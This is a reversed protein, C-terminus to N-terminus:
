LVVREWQLKANKFNLVVGVRMGTVKLYNIMQGREHDTIRDIVKTDVIVRDEVVLDPIFEGIQQGRFLVPYARQQALLVGEQRLAIVMANEYPKEHLGHGVETLVAMACGIVRYVLDKELVFEGGQDETEM